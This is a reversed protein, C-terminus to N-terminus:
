PEEGPRDTDAARDPAVYAVQLYSVRRAGEPRLEPDYARDAYEEVMADFREGLATLEEPTLYLMVDTHREARQWKEPLSHRTELARMMRHFHNEAVAANLAEAASAVAPDPSYNPWDTYAATARWPKERGPGGPDAEEVLGYKALIRLHYSCSAVSEGTLEAARTATFPGEMRLLGVLTMRTPHAYARLARPDTLSVQQEWPKETM